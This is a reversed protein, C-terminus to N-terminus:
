ATAKDAPLPTGFPYPSVQSFLSNRAECHRNTSYIFSSLPALNRQLANKTTKEGAHNFFHPGPTQIVLVYSYTPQFGLIGEMGRVTSGGLLDQLLWINFNQKM